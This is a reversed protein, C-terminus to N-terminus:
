PLTFNTSRGGEGEPSPVAMAPELKKTLAGHSPRRQFSWPIAFSEGEGQPLPGPHPRAECM